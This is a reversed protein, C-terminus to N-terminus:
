NLDPFGLHSTITNIAETVKDGFDPRPVSQVVDAVEDASLGVITVAEDKAQLVTISQETDVWAPVDAIMRLGQAPLASFDVLGPQHFISVAHNGAGDGSFLAQQFDAGEFFAKAELGSPLEVEPLQAILEDPNEDNTTPLPGSQFPSFFSAAVLSHQEALSAVQPVVGNSRLGGLGVALAMSFLAVASIGLTTRGAYLPRHNLASAIFGDPPDVPGLGSLMASISAEWDEEPEFKSDYTM